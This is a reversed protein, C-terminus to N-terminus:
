EAKELFVDKVLEELEDEDVYFEMYIEGLVSEGPLASIGESEYSELYGQLNHICDEDCGTYTHAEVERLMSFLDMEDVSDSLGGILAEMFDRQREMRATNSADELGRRARVYKLALAGDMTVTEGKVLREDALTLDDRVTLTVGGVRDILKEMGDMTISLYHDVEIGYLLEEVSKATNKCKKHSSMNELEGYAYSLAIQMVQTDVLQGSNSYRDVKTMTDRNIQLLRYSKTEKDFVALVILDAQARGDESTEGFRDLGMILFTEVDARRLYREGDIYVTRRALEEDSASGGGEGDGYLLTDLSLILAIGAALCLILAVLRIVIKKKM